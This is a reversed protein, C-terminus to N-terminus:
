SCLNPWIQYQFMRIRWPIWYKMSPDGCGLREMKCNWLKVEGPRSVMFHQSCRVIRPKAAITWNRRPHQKLLCSPMPSTNASNAVNKPQNESTLNKFLAVFTTYKSSMEFPPFKPAGSIEFFAPNKETSVRGGSDVDCFGSIAPTRSSGRVSNTWPM